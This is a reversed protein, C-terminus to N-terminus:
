HIAIGKNFTLTYCDNFLCAVFIFNRKFNPAYFIDKLIIKKFNDFYLHVKRMAVDIM